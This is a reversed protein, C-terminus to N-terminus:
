TWVWSTPRGVRASKRGRAASARTHRSGSRRKTSRIAACCGIIFEAPLNDSVGDSLLVLYTGRDLRTSSGGGEKNPWWQEILQSQEVRTLTTDGSGVATSDEYGLKKLRRDAPSKRKPPLVLLVSDGISAACATGDASLFLATLTTSLAGEGSDVLARDSVKLADKLWIWSM